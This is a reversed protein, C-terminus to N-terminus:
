SQLYGLDELRQEVDTEMEDTTDDDALSIPDLQTRLRDQLKNVVDQHESAIESKNVTQDRVDYLRQSGDTGEVYKWEKTRIAQLGRDYKLVEESLNGFRNELTEMAPQPVWYESFVADRDEDTLPFTTSPGENAVELLSPYLERLEVLDDRVAPEITEPYRVILPVNLLTDHLCYQHDMLGYDGINEGHDGTVVVLTDDLVGKESLYDFLQKIREDLYRLEANYLTELDDFDEASMEVEDTLYAWADQNVDEASPPNAGEPTVEEIYKSPPNYELHPELYNIFMFFPEEGRPSEDVWQKARRNTLWAGSDYLKRLYKTYVANIATKFIDPSLLESSLAKVRNATTSHEKAISAIDAGGSFVEWGMHFEDFGQDFGFSPSIWVNNSFAVTDYGSANLRSALPEVDPTFQQSNAHTQHDATYQGTFLSAHSPLSWPGTTFANTYKVGEQSFENLHPMVDPNYVHSARATDLVILLINPRTM